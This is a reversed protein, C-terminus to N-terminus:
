HGEMALVQRKKEKKFRGNCAGTTKPQKKHLPLPTISKMRRAGIRKRATRQKRKANADERQIRLKRSTGAGARGMM